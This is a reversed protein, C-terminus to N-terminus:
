VENVHPTIAIASPEHSCFRVDVMCHMEFSFNDKDTAIKSSIEHCQIIM